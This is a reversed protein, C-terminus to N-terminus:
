GSDAIRLESQGASRTPSENSLHSIPQQGGVVIELKRDLADSLDRRRLSVLTPQHNDIARRTADLM